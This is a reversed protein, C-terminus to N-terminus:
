HLSMPLCPQDGGQVHIVKTRGTPLVEWQDDFATIMSEAVIEAIAVVISKAPASQGVVSPDTVDGWLQATKTASSQAEFARM